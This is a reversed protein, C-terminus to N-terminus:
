LVMPGRGACGPAGVSPGRIKVSGKAADSSDVYVFDRPDTSIGTGSGSDHCAYKRTNLLDMTALSPVEIDLTEFCERPITQIRMLSSLYADLETNNVKKAGQRKAKRKLESKLTNVAAVTISKKEASTLRVKKSAPVHKYRCNVGFDCRGTDRFAYCIGDSKKKASMGDIGSRKTGSQRAPPGKRSNSNQWKKPACDAWDNPGAKCVADGRRHGFEGCGFCQIKPTSGFGPALMVPLKSSSSESKSASSFQRLKYESILKSKLELWSPLWDDSYNRYEWDDSIVDTSVKPMILNGTEADITPMMAQLQKKIKIESLLKDVSSQYKTNRLHKLVIKVLTSEKGFEYTDRKSPVCMKWLEIREAQLERLKDEMNVNPPFAPQGKGKPMGDSFIQERARVDDGAGGFQKFLHARVQPASEMGIQHVELLAAGTCLEEVKDFIRDFQKRNWAHHWSKNWFGSAVPYLHKAKVSDQDNIADWVMECYSDWDDGKLADIDPMTNNWFKNGLETGYKKRCWRGMRLDFEQLKAYSGDWKDKEKTKEDEGSSM